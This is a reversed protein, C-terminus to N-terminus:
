PWTRAGLAGSSLPAAVISGTVLLEVPVRRLGWARRRPAKALEFVLRRVRGSGQGLMARASHTSAESRMGDRWRHGEVDFCPRGSEAQFLLFSGRGSVPQHVWRHGRRTRHRWTRCCRCEGWGRRRSDGCRGRRCSHRRRHGRGHGGGGLRRRRRRERAHRHGDGRRYRSLQQRGAAVWVLGPLVTGALIKPEGRGSPVARLDGAVAGAAGVVSPDGSSGSVPWPPAAAIPTSAGSRGASGGPGGPRARASRVLGVM